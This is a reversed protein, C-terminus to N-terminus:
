RSVLVAVPLEALVAAVRTPGGDVARGTLVDHWRGEPLDVSQDGWGGRAALRAPARTVLTLLSSSGSLGLAGALRGVAGGRSSRIFGLLHEGASEIPLYDGHLFVQPDERRLRSLRSTVWLKELDLAEGLLRDRPETGTRAARIAEWPQENLRTLLQRRRDYDVPRRNDPDVLSLDVIECGQYCDPVGPLTLQLTKAALVTARVAEAHRDLAADIADHLRGDHRVQAVFELVRREYDEDGDVWATHEKAERLAKLLYDDLRDPAVYGVGLLTQWILHATAADVGAEAAQERAIRSCEEWAAPDGAVALLRARVDESRKTDHTSLTTMGQPWEAVQHAAWTHLEEVGGGDLASPDGGVENLAVLRHWRYFTTDEIGKAMVPGWTQQLRVSFDWANPDDDDAVTLPMLARLQPELDARAALATAFAHSLRERAQPSLREDPRIYARYVEGAILLEIIAERLLDPEQHPLAERARRVLREVEPTLSQAVVQRKAATTAEELTADGGAATWQDTVTDATAPDVLAADIVRLADYGTTGDCPWSHPLRERGELIKEVVLYTGRTAARRLQNLYGAPDALGDPHDIRFGDILGAHNLELLLRHTADFVEPLEVRVAILGDVEFFRRYNLTDDKERWHALRYHQRDLLARITAPETDGPTAGGETGVSVPLVHDAYRLVTIDHGTTPDPIRDVGIDGRTLLDDLDDGLIPLGLRGGGAKWDIDFWDATAADRGDRLVQWLPLNSSQPAVFAMHNPVVDVIIGLGHDTATAALTEFGSRGGLDDSIRTHDIVDYGHMSGPVAQLIPSLYLHSVGLDALYPVVTTADAFGFDRHLQLRYTGTVPM